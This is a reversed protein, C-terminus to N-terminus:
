RSNRRARRQGNPAVALAAAQPCAGWSGFRADRAYSASFTFCQNGQRTPAGHTADAYAPVGGLLAGFAVTAAAFSLKRM